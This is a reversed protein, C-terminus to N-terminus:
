KQYKRILANAIKYTNEILDQQQSESLPPRDPDYYRRAIKIANDYNPNVMLVSGSKPISTLYTDGTDSLRAKFIEGKIAKRIHDEVVDRPWKEQAIRYQVSFSEPHTVTYSCQDKYSSNQQMGSPNYGLADVLVDVTLKCTDSLAYLDSYDGRQDLAITTDYTTQVAEPPNKDSGPLEKKKDTNGCSALLLYLFIM